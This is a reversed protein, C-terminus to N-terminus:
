CGFWGVKIASRAPEALLPLLEPVVGAKRLLAALLHPARPHSRPDRLRRCAGDVVYDANAAVLAGLGYSTPLQQPQPPQQSPQQQGTNPQPTAPPTQQLSTTSPPALPAGAGHVSGAAEAAAYGAHLCISRLSAEAAEAVLFCPDVLRELLPLLVPRLLTGSSFVPGLARAAAGPADVLARLLLM